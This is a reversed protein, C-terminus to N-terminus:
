DDAGGSTFLTNPVRPGASYTDPNPGSGESRSLWGMRAMVKLVNQASRESADAKTAVDSAPFEGGETAISLSHNWIRDRATADAM